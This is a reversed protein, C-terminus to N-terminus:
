VVEEFSESELTTPIDKILGLSTPPWAVAHLYGLKEKITKEEIRIWYKEGLDISKIKNNEILIVKISFYGAWAGREKIILYQDKPIKCTVELYYELEKQNKM